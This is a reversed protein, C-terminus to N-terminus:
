GSPTSINIGTEYYRELENLVARCRHIEEPNINMYIINLPDGLVLINSRDLTSRIVVSNMEIDKCSLDLSKSVCRDGIRKFYTRNELCEQIRDDELIYTGNNHKITSFIQYINVNTPILTNYSYIFNVIVLVAYGFFMYRLLRADTLIVKIIYLLVFIFSPIMLSSLFALLLRLLDPSFDGFRNLNNYIWYINFLYTQNTDHYIYTYKSNIKSMYELTRNLIVSLNDGNIPRNYLRKIDLFENQMQADDPNLTSYLYYKESMLNEIEELDKFTQNIQETMNKLLEEYYEMRALYYQFDTMNRSNLKNQLLRKLETYEQYTSIYESFRIKSYVDNYIRELELSRNLAMQFPISINRIQLNVSYIQLRVPTNNQIRGIVGELDMLLPIELRSILSLSRNIGTTNHSIPFCMGYCEECSRDGIRLKTNQVKISSNLLANLENRLSSIEARYNTLSINGYLRNTINNLLVDLLDSSSMFEVVIPKVKNFLQVDCDLADERCIFLAYCHYPDKKCVEVNTAIRGEGLAARCAFEEVKGLFRYRPNTDDYRSVNFELLSRLMEERTDLTQDLLQKARALLIRRISNNDTIIQYNCELLNPVGNFYLIRCTSNDATFVEDYYQKQEDPLFYDIISGSGAFSYLVALIYLIM